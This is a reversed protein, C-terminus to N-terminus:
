EEEEDGEFGGISMLVAMLEAGMRLLEVLVRAPSRTSDEEVEAEVM